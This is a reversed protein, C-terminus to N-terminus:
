CISYCHMWIRYSILAVFCIVCFLFICRSGKSRSLVFFHGGIVSSGTILIPFLVPYYQPFLLLFLVTWAQLGIFYSLLTRTKIKDDYHNALSHLSGIVTIFLIYCLSLIDALTWNSYDFRFDPVLQRFPEYFVEMNGTCFAYAFVVWYPLALGAIGASFTRHTLARFNAVNGYFFPLYYLLPPFLLSGIGVFLFGQFVYGVPQLLQYSNFLNHTAFLLCPILLPAVDSKQPFLLGAFLVFLTLYFNSHLRLLAFTNHLAVLQIGAVCLLLYCILRQAFSSRLMEPLMEQFMGCDRGGGSLLANALWFLTVILIVVPLTFRGTTIREQIHRKRTM